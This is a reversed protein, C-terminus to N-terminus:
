AREAANRIENIIAATPYNGTVETLNPIPRKTIAYIEKLGNQLAKMQGGWASFLGVNELAIPPLGMWARQRNVVEQMQLIDARHSINENAIIDGAHIARLWKPETQTVTKEESYASVGMADTARIRITHRGKLSLSVEGGFAIWEGSDVRYHLTVSQGDPDGENKAKFFLSESNTEGSVPYIITPANPLRNKQLAPTATVWDSAYAEGAAGVARIRFERKRGREDPPQVKTSGSGGGNTQSSDYMWSGWSSGDWDRHQVQYFGIANGNGGAAGSYLLNAAGEAISADLVASTPAKCKSVAISWNVEIRIETQSKLVGAQGGNGEMVLETINQFCKPNRQDITRRGGAQNFSEEFPVTGNFRGIMNHSWIDRMTFTLFASDIRVNTTDNPFATGTMYMSFVPANRGNYVDVNGFVTSTYITRPM